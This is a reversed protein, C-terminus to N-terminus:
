DVKVFETIIANADLVTTVQNSNRTIIFSLYLPVPSNPTVVVATGTCNPNVRYTGSAKTWGPALPVGGVVTHEVWSLKGHGDFHTMGISRFELSVGPAPLLVGTATYGYNGEITETNCIQGSQALAPSALLLSGFVLLASTAIAPLKVIWGPKM